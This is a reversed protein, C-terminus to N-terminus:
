RRRALEARTPLAPVVGRREVAYAGALNALEVAEELGTGDALAVALAANFADGAGTTDVVQRPRSGPIRIVPGQPCAVLAGEAGLTMVVSGRGRARLRHLAQEPGSLGALAMAEERNPTLWDILPWAEDPLPRAPAPNLLTPVGCRRAVRLAAVAAAVPIELGVLCLDAAAIQDEFAEVDGPGLEELAGPAIAIRNEGGPEVLIFGVMTPRTGTKVRSAGVGERQWLRRAAAGFEDPGVCTLLEVQAGLRRAGIAQNSGKGGPGAAFGDAVLTEGPRPLRPVTMTLGVGYSGVVALRAM